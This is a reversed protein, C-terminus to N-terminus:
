FCRTCRDARLGAYPWMRGTTTSWCHMGFAGIETGLAAKVDFIESLFWSDSSRARFGLRVHKDDLCQILMSLPKAGLISEPVQQPFRLTLSGGPFPRHTKEKPANLAGPTWM